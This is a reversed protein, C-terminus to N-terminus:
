FEFEAQFIVGELEREAGELKTRLQNTDEQGANSKLALIDSELKSIIETKNEVTEHLGKVERNHLLSTKAYELIECIM